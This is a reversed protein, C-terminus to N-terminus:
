GARRVIMPGRSTGFAWCSSCGSASCGSKSFLMARMPPSHECHYRSPLVLQQVRLMCVAGLVRSGAGHQQSFGSDAQALEPMSRAHAAYEDLRRQREQEASVVRTQLKDVELQTIDNLEQM